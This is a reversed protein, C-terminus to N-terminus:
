ENEIPKETELKIEEQLPLVIEDSRLLERKIKIIESNALIAEYDKEIKSQLLSGTYFLGDILIEYWPSKGYQEEKILEIKM